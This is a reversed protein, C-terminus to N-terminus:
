RGRVGKVFASWTAPAITLPSGEPAKSDRIRIFAPATAVEVCDGGGSDSYTSKFWKLETM